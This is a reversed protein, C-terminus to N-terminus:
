KDIKTKFWFESGSGEESNVGYEFNHKELVGRVISLGLGSGISARIHNRAKYYREWVNSIEDKPIGKGHDIVSITVYDNEVKQNVIVIKDDFFTVAPVGNLYTIPYTEVKNFDRDCLYCYAGTVDQIQILNNVGIEKM